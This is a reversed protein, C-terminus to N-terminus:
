NKYAWKCVLFYYKNAWKYVLFYNIDTIVLDIIHYTQGSIIKKPMAPTVEICIQSMTTLNGEFRLIGYESEQIILMCSDTM